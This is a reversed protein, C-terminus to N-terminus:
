YKNRCVGVIIVLLIFLVLADKEISKRRKQHCKAGKDLNMCGRQKEEFIKKDIERLGKGFQTNVFYSCSPYSTKLQGYCNLISKYNDAKLAKCVINLVNDDDLDIDTLIKNPLM